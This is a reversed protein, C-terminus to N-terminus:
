NLSQELREAVKILFEDEHKDTLEESAMNVLGVWALLILLRAERHRANGKNPTDVLWRIAPHLRNFRHEGSTLSRYVAPGLPWTGFGTAKFFEEAKNAVRRGLLQNLDSHFSRLLQAELEKRTPPRKEQEKAHQKKKNRSKEIFNEEEAEQEQRRLTLMEVFTDVKNHAVKFPTLGWAVLQKASDVLRETDVLPPREFEAISKSGLVGRLVQYGDSERELILVDPAARFSSEAILLPAQEETFKLALAGGSMWTGDARLYLPLDWLAQALKGGSCHTSSTVFRSVRNLISLARDRDHSDLSQHCLGEVWDHYVAYVWREVVERAPRPFEPAPDTYKTDSHSAPELGIVNGSVPLGQWDIVGLVSGESDFGLLRSSEDVALVARLDQSEFERSNLDNPITTELSKLYQERRYEVRLVTEMDNLRAKSGAVKLLFKVDSAKEFVVNRNTKTRLPFDPEVYPISKPHKTLVEGMSVVGGGYLRVIPSKLIEEKPLYGRPLQRMWTFARTAVSRIEHCLLPVVELACLAKLETLLSSKVAIEKFDRSLTIGEHELAVYCGPPLISEKRGALRGDIYCYLTGSKQSSLHTSNIGIEGRGIQLPVRRTFEGPLEIKDVVDKDLFVQRRRQEDLYLDARRTKWRGGFVKRLLEQEHEEPTLLVPRPATIWDTFCLVHGHEELEERLEKLSLMKGEQVTSFLPESEFESVLDLHSALLRLRVFLEQSRDRLMSLELERFRENVLELLEQFDSTNAKVGSWDAKPELAGGSLLAVGEFTVQSSIKKEELTVGQHVVHLIFHSNTWKRFGVELFVGDQEHVATALFSAGELRELSLPPPNLLQEDIEQFRELDASSVEVVNGKGLRKKLGSINGRTTWILPRPLIRRPFAESKPQFPKGVFVTGEAALEELSYVREGMSDAFLPTESDARSLSKTSGSIRELLFHRMVPSLEGEPFPPLRDFLERLEKNLVSIGSRYHRGTGRTWLEDVELEDFNIVAVSGPPALHSLKDAGLLHNQYLIDVTPDISSNKLFGIEAQWKPEELKETLYYDGPPLRTPRPSNEWRTKNEEAQLKRRYAPGADILIDPSFIRGLVRAVDGEELLIVPRDLRLHFRKESTLIELNKKSTGVTMHDLSCYEERDALPFIQAKRLASAAPDSNIESAYQRLTAYMEPPPELAVEALCELARKKAQEVAEIYVKDQVVHSYSADLKFRPSDLVASYTPVTELGQTEVIVGFRVLTLSTWAGTALEVEVGQVPTQVLEEGNLTVKGVSYQVRSRLAEDLGEIAQRAHFRFVTEGSELRELVPTELCENEVSNFAVGLLHYPISGSDTAFVEERCGELRAKDLHAGSACLSVVQGQGKQETKLEIELLNAGACNLAQVALLVAEEMSSLQFSAMKKQARKEDLTFEGDETYKSGQRFRELLSM